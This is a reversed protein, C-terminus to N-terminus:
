RQRGLLSHRKRMKPEGERSWSRHYPIFWAVPTSLTSVFGGGEISDVEEKLRRRALERVELLDKAALPGKKAGASARKAREAEEQYRIL